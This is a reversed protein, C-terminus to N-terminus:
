PAREKGTAGIWKILMLPWLAAAGPFILVRFGLTGHRAAPDVRGVGVSVFALAVIIGILAYVAIVVLLGQTFNL